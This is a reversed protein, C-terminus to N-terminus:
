RHRSFTRVDEDNAASIIESLLDQIEHGQERHEGTIMGVAEFVQGVLNTQSETMTKRGADSQAGM